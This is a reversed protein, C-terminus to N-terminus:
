VGCDGGQDQHREGCVSQVGLKVRLEGFKLWRLAKKFIDALQDESSVRHVNVKGEEIYERIFHFRTDIHKSHSHYVPNKGLAIASKNDVMLRVPKPSEGKLEAILMALRIGQCAAATMSIYEDECSSLAVIKHKQSAWSILNPGLFFSIGTTSKRDDLDESPDSDCYGVLEQEGVAKEYRLGLDLTGKIYRLLRKVAMMHEAM